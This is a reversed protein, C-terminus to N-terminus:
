APPITSRRLGVGTEIALLLLLLIGLRLQFAAQFAHREIEISDAHWVILMLAPASVVLFAAVLWVPTLRGNRWVWLTAMLTTLTAVVLVPTSRPFLLNSFALYWVPLRVEDGAFESSLPNLLQRHAHVPELLLKGPNAILYSLYVPRGDEALWAEIARFRANHLLSDVFGSRNLSSLVELREGAPMGRETFFATAQADALVRDRLVHYFPVKWRGSGAVLALQMVVVALLVGGYGILLWGGRQPRRRMTLLLGLALLIVATMLVLPINGDRVMSFLAGLLTLSGIIASGVLMSLRGWDIDAASVSLLAAISLTFLSTAVSESLWLPDWMSVHFGLGFALILWFGLLRLWPRQLHATFTWAIALWGITSLLGQLIGIPAQTPFMALSGADLGILKYLLPLTVPRPGLWFAASTMPEAAVQVYSLTDPFIRAPVANVLALKSAGFLFSSALRAWDVWPMRAIRRGMQWIHATM